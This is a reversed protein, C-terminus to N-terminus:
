DVVAIVRHGAVELASALPEVPMKELRIYYVREGCPDVDMGISIVRGGHARIIELVGDLGEPEKPIVDVRSSSRLLGMLEIFAELLDTITIIGVLRGKEVVPLGGIKHRYIIRAAEDITAEPSVTIPNQIMVERVPRSLEGPRTYQRITSETLFGLLRDGETVPLHRIAHREMLRVAEELSEEPSVTIVEKVMWHKVKM